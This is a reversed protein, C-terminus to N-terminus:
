LYQYTNANEYCSIIICKSDDEPVIKTQHAMLLKKRGQSDNKLALQGLLNKIAM